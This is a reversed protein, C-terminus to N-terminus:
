WIKLSSWFYKFLGQSLSDDDYWFITHTDMGDWPILCFIISRNVSIGSYIIYLEPDGEQATSALLRKICFLNSCIFILLFIMPRKLVATCSYKTHLSKWHPLHYIFFFNVCWFRSADDMFLHKCTLLYKQWYHLLHDRCRHKQM